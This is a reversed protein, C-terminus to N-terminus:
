KKQSRPRDEHKDEIDKSEFQFEEQSLGKTNNELLEVLHKSNQSVSQLIEIIKEQNKVRLNINFYWLWFCRTILFIVIFVILSLLPTALWYMYM